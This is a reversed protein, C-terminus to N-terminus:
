YRRWLDKIFNTSHYANTGQASRPLRTDRYWFVRLRATKLNIFDRRPTEILSIWWVREGYCFWKKSELRFHPSFPDVFADCTYALIYYVFRPHAKLSRQKRKGWFEFTTRIELFLRSVCFFLCSTKGVKSLNKDCWVKKLVFRSCGGPSSSM